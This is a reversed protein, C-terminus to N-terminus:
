AVKGEGQEPVISHVVGRFKQRNTFYLSFVMSLLVPVMLAAYTYNAGYREAIVGLIPSGIAVSSQNVLMRYSAMRGYYAPDTAVQQISQCLVRLWTTGLGILLVGGYVAPLERTFALLGLGALIILLSVSAVFRRTRYLYWTALAGAIVGGVSVVSQLTGALTSTGHLYASVYVALMGNSTHMVLQGVFMMLFLGYFFPNQSLYRFGSVLDHAVSTREKKAPKTVGELTAVTRTLAVCVTAILYALAVILMCAQTGILALAVGGFSAGLMAGVEGIAGTQSYVKPLDVKAFAEALFAQISPRYLTAFLQVVMHVAIILWPHVVGLWMSTLFILMACTSVAKAFVALRKRNFRDVFIGVFVNLFLGPVFGLGVLMGTYAADRTIEYMIWTVAILYMAGGFASFFSAMAIQLLNGRMM